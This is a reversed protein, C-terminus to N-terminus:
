KRPTTERPRLPQLRSSTLHCFPLRAGLALFSAGPPLSIRSSRCLRIWCNRRRNNAPHHIFFTSLQRSQTKASSSTDTKSHPLTPPLLITYLLSIGNRFLHTPSTFTNLYQHITIFNTTKLTNRPYQKYLITSLLFSLLFSVPFFSFLDLIM